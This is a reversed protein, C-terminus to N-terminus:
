KRLNWSCYAVSCVKVCQVIVHLFCLLRYVVTEGGVTSLDKTEVLSIQFPVSAVLTTEEFVEAPYSNGM